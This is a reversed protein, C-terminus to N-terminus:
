RNQKIYIQAGDFGKEYVPKGEEYIVNIQLKLTSDNSLRLPYVREDSKNPEIACKLHLMTFRGVTDLFYSCTDIDSNVTATTILVTSSDMFNLTLSSSFVLEKDERSKWEGKLNKYTIKQGIGNVALLIFLTTILVKM